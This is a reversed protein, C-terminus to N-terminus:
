ETEQKKRSLPEVVREGRDYVGRTMAMSNHGARKMAEELNASDSINKARLDHFTFREKLVGERLARRMARQWVARFGDSTYKKGGHKEAPDPHWPRPATRLVYKRPFVPTMMKARNLVEELEPTIRVRIRKGTKKLTKSPAFRIAWEERKGKPVDVQDWTLKLLDGQRQGTLLALDMAVKLRPSAINYLAQYEEDSVYRDRRGKPPKELNTCPNRDCLYWRGVAKSFVASLVAVLKISQARGHGYTFLAGVDKPRIDDPRLAGFVERLKKMHKLYDKQTREGL